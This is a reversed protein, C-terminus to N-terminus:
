EDSVAYTSTTKDVTNIYWFSGDCIAELKDGIQESSGPATITFTNRATGTTASQKIKSTLVNATTKTNITVTASATTNILLFTFNLGANNTVIPLTIVLNNSSNDLLIVSGSQESTLVLTSSSHTYLNLKRIQAKPFVYAM